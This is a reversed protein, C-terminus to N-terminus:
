NKYFYNCSFMDCSQHNCRLTIAASPQTVVVARIEATETDFTVSLLDVKLPCM